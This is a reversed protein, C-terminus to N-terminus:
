TMHPDHQFLGRPRTRKILSLLFNAERRTAAIMLGAIRSSFMFSMTNVEYCIRKSERGMM